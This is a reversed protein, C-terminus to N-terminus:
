APKKVSFLFITSSEFKEGPKLVASSFGPQNPSDPFHQTELCFANRYNYVAGKGKESGNLFNGSYFQVGPETTFVELVRGSGPATVKAALKMKGKEGNLVFNHDYGLGYKIQQDTTDNIREGIKHPTSFDFPTGSVKKIEGTPILTADVPTFADANLFLEHDLIDGKGQGELNFYSHNAVNLLTPQDATASYDMSLSNDNKLRYRVTITVNGPYGEEGDKSLYTLTVGQDDQKGSWVAKDFGKLGGHLSNPGNNKALTYKKGELEFEGKAIRNAYRGVMCGFYAKGNYYGQISDYGLVVDDMKGNKDAVRISVIAAGYNTILAEMGNANTLKYLEVVQGNLTDSFHNKSDHNSMAGDKHESLICSNLVVLASLFFFFKM